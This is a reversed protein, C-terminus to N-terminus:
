NLYNGKNLSSSNLKLKLFIIGSIVASTESYVLGSFSNNRHEMKGTDTPDFSIIEMGECMGLNCNKTQRTIKGGNKGGGTPPPNTCTRIRTQVGKGCTM